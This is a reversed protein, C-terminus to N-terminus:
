NALIKSHALVQWSCVVAHQIQKGEESALLRCAGQLAVAAVVSAAEDGM